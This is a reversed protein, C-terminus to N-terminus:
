KKDLREFKTHCCSCGEAMNCKRSFAAGITPCIKPFLVEDGYCNSICAEKPGIQKMYEYIACYTIDFELCNDTNELIVYDHVGAKKGIRFMELIYAKFAIFADGCAYFDEASPLETMASLYATADTIEKMIEMAKEKDTVKALACFMAIKRSFSKQLMEITENKIPGKVPFPIRSIRKQEKRLNVFLTLMKPVGIRKRIISLATRKAEKTAKPHNKSIKQFMVNMEVGYNKLDRIEM